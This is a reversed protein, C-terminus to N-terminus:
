QLKLLETKRLESDKGFWINLTQKSAEDNTFLMLRPNSIIEKYEDDSLAALGKKYEITWEKTNINSLWQIYEDNSYFSM